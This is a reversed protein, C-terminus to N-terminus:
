VAVCVAYVSHCPMKSTKNSVHCIDESQALLSTVFLQVERLRKDAVNKVNTRGVRVGRSLPHLRALPYMMCLKEYLECVERYSRFVFTPERQNERFVKFIYVYYKQPDFRKQFGFSEVTTLRPETRQSFSKSAFSLMQGKTNEASFRLQALNHLFFNFQTFWSKVSEEILRTFSATAEAEHLDMMLARQVYRSAEKSIGPIDSFVM